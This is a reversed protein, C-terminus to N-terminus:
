MFVKYPQNEGLRGLIFKNAMVNQGNINHLPTLILLNIWNPNFKHYMRCELRGYGRWVLKYHQSSIQGKPLKFTIIINNIHFYKFSLRSVLSASCNWFKDVIQQNEQAVPHFALM